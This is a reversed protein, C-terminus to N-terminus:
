KRRRSRQRCVAGCYRADRRVATFEAGCEECKVTVAPSGTASLGVDASNDTVNAASAASVSAEENDTVPTKGANRSVEGEYERTIVGAARAAARLEECLIIVPVGGRVVTRPQPVAGAEIKRGWECGCGWWVGISGCFLCRVPRDVSRSLELLGKMNM